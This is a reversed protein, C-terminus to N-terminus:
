FDGHVREIEVFDYELWASIPAVTPRIRAVPKEIELLYSALCPARFYGTIRHASDTPVFFCAESLPGSAQEFGTKSRGCFELMYLRSQHEVAFERGIAGHERIYRWGLPLGLLLAISGLSAYAARWGSRSIITQAVVALIMAGLGAGLMNLALALGLNQRFWTSISRSYALQAAGKGLWGLVLCTVYFQWLEARVLALSVIASGFVTMCLLIIRRPGFRDIWRGLFPSVFSLTVAAIALGTPIAERSWGFKAALPKVFVSFTYVFLSGFAAMVGLCAALVVRWGSLDSEGPGPATEAPQMVDTSQARSASTEAKRRVYDTSPIKIHNLGLKDQSSSCTMRKLGFPEGLAKGKVASRLRKADSDQRAISPM